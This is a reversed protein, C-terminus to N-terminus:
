EKRLSSGIKVLKWFFDTESALLIRESEKFAFSHAFAYVYDLLDILKFSQRYESRVEDSNAFCVNESNQEELFLLRLHDSFQKIVDKNVTIMKSDSKQLIENLSFSLNTDISKIKQICLELDANNSFVIKTKEGQLAEIKDLYEQITMKFLRLHYLNLHYKKIFLFIM